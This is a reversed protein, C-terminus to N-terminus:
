NKKVEPLTFSRRCCVRGTGVNFYCVNLNLLNLFKEM